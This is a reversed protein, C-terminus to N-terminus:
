TPIEGFLFPHHLVALTRIERLSSVLTISSTPSGRLVVYVAGACLSCISAVRRLIPTTLGEHTFLYTFNYNIPYISRVHIHSLIFLYIFIEALYKQSKPNISKFIFALLFLDCLCIYYLLSGLATSKVLPKERSFYCVAPLCIVTPCNISSWIIMVIDLCHYNYLCWM